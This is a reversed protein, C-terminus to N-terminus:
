SESGLFHETVARRSHGHEGELLDARQRARRAAGKAPNELHADLADLLEDVEHLLPGGAVQELDFYLGRDTAVYDDLDYVFHLVPRDLLLFDVYAGSYDTVLLDSSLLLDNSDVDESSSLDVVAPPIARQDAGRRLVADVFHGREVLVADHHDLISQLRQAAVAQLHSFSFACDPNDRFTPMYTVIRKSAPVQHDRALRARFEDNRVEGDAAAVFVDARPQGLVLTNGQGCNTSTFEAALKNKHTRSSAIFYSYGQPARWVRQMWRLVPRSTVPDADPPGMNKVALGHGLYVTTARCTLNYEHLDRYGHSVFITGARLIAWTAALSGRRVFSSNEDQPVQTRVQDLGCWTYQLGPRHERAFEYLYRPNDSYRHGHWAGFLVRRPSRPVLGSAYYLLVRLVRSIRM